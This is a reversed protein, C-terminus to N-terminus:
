IKSNGNKIEKELVKIREEFVVNKEAIEQIAKYAVSVMSYLDAGIEKGEDDLVTIENAYKYDKGIVFGIRKKDNNDQVNLNYKYIDTSKVINLADQLPEFNKKYKQLSNNSLVDARVIAQGGARGQIYVGTSIDTGIYGISANVSGIYTKANCDDEIRFIQDGLRRDANLNIRGGTITANSSNITGTVNANTCTMNGNKDVNFNNSKIITNDSTLNIQKGNLLFKIGM